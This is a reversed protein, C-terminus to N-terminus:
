KLNQDRRALYFQRAMPVLISITLGITLAFWEIKDLASFFVDVEAYSRFYDKPLVITPLLAVVIPLLIIAFGAYFATRSINDDWLRRQSAQKQSRRIRAFRALKPHRAGNPHANDLTRTLFFGLIGLSIIVLGWSNPWSFAVYLSCCFLVFALLTGAFFFVFRFSQWRSRENVDTM